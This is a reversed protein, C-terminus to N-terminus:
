VIKYVGTASDRTIKGEKQLEKLKRKLTALSVPSEDEETRAKLESFTCPGLSIWGYVIDSKIISAQVVVASDVDPVLELALELTDFDAADKQKNCEVAINGTDKDRSVAIMTDAAGRFASNGREGTGGKNTHHIIMVTAGYQLRMRDVGAIFRGMDEQENENGDFCRALTDIVILVPQREVEIDLRDFLRDIDDADNNVSVAETLWSIRLDDPALQRKLLIAKVRKTIGVGGEAAIYVVDGGFTAFGQWDQAAAVASAMDLAVFSKGEGPPGYLGVVGGRPIINDILWEPAPLAILERTSYLKLRGGGTLQFDTPRSSM